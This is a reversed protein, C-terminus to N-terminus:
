SALKRRSEEDTIRENWERILAALDRVISGKGTSTGTPWHQALKKVTEVLMTVDAPDRKDFAGKCALGLARKLLNVELMSSLMLVAAGPSAKAIAEALRSAEPRGGFDNDIIYIDYGPVAVPEQIAVADLEPCASRIRMLLIECISKDDDLIILRKKRTM